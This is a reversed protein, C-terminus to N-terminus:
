YKVISEISMNIQSIRNTNLYFVSYSEVEETKDDNKSKSL